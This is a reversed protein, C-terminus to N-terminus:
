TDSDLNGNHYHLPATCPNCAQNSRPGGLELSGELGQKSPAFASPDWSQRAGVQTSRLNPYSETLGLLLPLLHFGVLQLRDLHPLVDDSSTPLLFDPRTGERDGRPSIGM